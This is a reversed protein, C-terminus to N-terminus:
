LVRRRRALSNLPVGPVPVVADTFPDFAGPEAIMANATAPRSAIPASSVAALPMSMSAGGTFNPLPEPMPGGILRSLNVMKRYRLRDEYGQRADREAREKALNAQEVDWRRKDEADRRAAEARNLADQEREFAEARAAARDSAQQARRAAGTQARSGVVATTTSAGAGVTAALIAATSTAVAM